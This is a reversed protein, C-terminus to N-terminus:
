ESKKHWTVNEVGNKQNEWDEWFEKSRERSEKGKLFLKIFTYNVMFNVWKLHVFWHNNPFQSLQAVIVVIWAHFMEMPGM